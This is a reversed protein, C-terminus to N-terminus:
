IADVWRTRDWRKIWFEDLTWNREPTVAGLPHWSRYEKVMPEWYPRAHQLVFDHDMFESEVIGRHPNSEIWEIAGMVSGVVQLSTANNYPALSRAREISLQSGIWLGPHRDSILLVGLEDIGSVIEDKLVKAKHITDRSGAELLRLSDEAEDSPHYAYYVTPRYEVRDQIDGPVTLYSAISFAENHSILRGTFEGAAPSWSQVAAHAGLCPFFVGAKSGHDHQRADHALAGAFEHSGWGLEVPQLAEAVFGEVSWTNVFEDAERPRCAVQQDRESIQIVRVGLRQALKAWELASDPAIYENLLDRAMTQLGEKVLLSVFGPNAGHAVVATSGVVASQKMERQLALVSERMRYNTNDACELMGDRYEWPDICTDLYFAGREQTWRIIDCSGISTALNLVLSQGAVHDNLLSIYNERTIRIRTARMNFEAAIAQQDPEMREDFIEILAHPFRRRLPASMAQGINGFGLVVINRIPSKM